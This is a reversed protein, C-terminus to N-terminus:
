FSSNFGSSRVTGLFTNVHSNELTPHVISSSNGILFQNIGLLKTFQDIM